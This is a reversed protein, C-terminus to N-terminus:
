NGEIEIEIEKFSAKVVFDEKCDFCAIKEVFWGDEIGGDTGYVSFNAGGCKPCKIINM